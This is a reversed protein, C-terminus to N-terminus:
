SVRLVGTGKVRQTNGALDTASVTWRYAGKPLTCRRSSVHRRDVTVTGAPLKKVLRGHRYIRITV